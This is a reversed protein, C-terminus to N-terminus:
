LSPLGKAGEVVPGLVDGGHAGSLGPRTGACPSAGPPRRRAPGAGAAAGLARPVRQYATASTPRSASARSAPPLDAQPPRQGGLPLAAGASRTPTRESRDAGVTGPNLSSSSSATPSSHSARLKGPGPFAGRGTRRGRQPAAVQSRCGTGPAPRRWSGTAPAATIKVQPPGSGSSPAQTRQPPSIIMSPRSRGRSRPRTRGSDGVSTCSSGWGARVLRRGGGAPSM